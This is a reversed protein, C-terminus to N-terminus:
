VNGAIKALYSIKPAFQPCKSSAYKTTKEQIDIIHKSFKRINIGTADKIQQDTAIDKLAGLYGTRYNAYLAAILANKDQM